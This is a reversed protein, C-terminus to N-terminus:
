CLGTFNDYTKQLVFLISMFMNTMRSQTWTIRHSTVVCLNYPTMLIKLCDDSKIMFIDSVLVCHKLDTQIVEASGFWCLHRKESYFLM